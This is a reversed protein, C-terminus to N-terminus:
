NILADTAEKKAESEGANALYQVRQEPTLWWYVYLGYLGGLLFIVATASGGAILVDSDATAMAFSAIIVSPMVLLWVGFKGGPVQWPRPM